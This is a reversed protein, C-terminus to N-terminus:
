GARGCALLISVVQLIVAESPLCQTPQEYPKLLPGACMHSSVFRYLHLTGLLPCAGDVRAFYLWMCHSSEDTGTTLDGMVRWCAWASAANRAHM